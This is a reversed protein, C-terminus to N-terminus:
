SVRICPGVLSRCAARFRALKKSHSRLGDQEPEKKVAEKEVCGHGVINATVTSAPAKIRDRPTDGVDMLPMKDQGNATADSVRRSPLSSTQGHADTDLTSRCLEREQQCSHLASPLLLMYSEVTQSVNLTATGTKTPGASNARGPSASPSGPARQLLPSTSSQQHSCPKRRSLPSGKPITETSSVVTSPSRNTADQQPKNIVDSSKSLIESSGEKSIVWIGTLIILMQLAEDTEIYSAQSSTPREFYSTESSFESCVPSQPNSSPPSSSGSSMLTPFRDLIDLQNDGTLTAIVPHLRTKPNIISFTFRSTCRKNAPETLPNRKPNPRRAGRLVWRLKLGNHNKGSFEYVGAKLCTAEWVLGNELCIEDQNALGDKAKKAYCITGLFDRHRRTTEDGSDDTTDGDTTSDQAYMESRVLVLNDTGLCKDGRMLRPVSRAFRSAFAASSIVDFTPLPRRSDSILQLQFIMRPRTSLRQKSRTIPPPHALLFRTRAKAKREKMGDKPLRAPPQIDHPPSCVDDLGSSDFSIPASADTIDPLSPDLRFLSALDHVLAPMTWRRAELITDSVM